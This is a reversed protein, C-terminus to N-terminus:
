ISIIGILLIMPYCTNGCSEFLFRITLSFRLIVLDVLSSHGRKLSM